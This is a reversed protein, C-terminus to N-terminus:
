GVTPRCRAQDKKNSFIDHLNKGLLARCVIDEDKKRARVAILDVGMNEENNDEDEDLIIKKVDPEEDNIGTKRETAPPWVPTHM